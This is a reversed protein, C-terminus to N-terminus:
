AVWKEEFEPVPVPKAFYYGQFMNCGMASLARYQSETEVGESLSTMGLDESMKIISHMITRTREKEGSERLFAMDIKLVDVPMDKLLNLSSYGSGFDDMEIIFGAERLENLIQLRNDIDAMMVTETIELRLRVPDIDYEKVLSKLEAMVDIFFFDKPSINVSIFLDNNWRKLIECASRWIYKDVSAILGNKELAPIFSAPSLFGRDPHNWRVLAEAGVVKGDRDVLPQLYPCLERNDIARQVENAINRDWIAKLRMEEDYRAIHTHLDNKITNHAMNARDFMVPVELSPDNIEYVGMHIPVVYHMWGQMVEFNALKDRVSTEDVKGKPLCLGFKDSSFRGFIGGCETFEERIWRAISKLVYDGFATGFVDNVLKFGDVNAFVIEREKSPDEDLEARIREYLYERTYLGTLTDHRANFLKQELERKEETSDHVIIFSGSQNVMQRTISLYRTNEGKGITREGSWNGEQPLKGIMENLRESAMEFGKGQLGAFAIGRYNAWICMNSADFLFVANEMEQALNALMSDLLRVPKFLLAFYFILLGFVGYGIMSRDIPSRSFIYFTQWGGVILMTILIVYYREAYIRPTKKTKVIFIILVSFFIVYDLIRHYTQGAFPVLKYYAYGDVVSPLTRFANRFFPNLCFQVLDAIIPIIVLLQMKRNPWKINCYAFAFSLLALLAFDMGMFYIYCGVTSLLKNGTYVIITNGIIPPILALLMRALPKGIPKKSRLAIVACVILAAAIILFIVSYVARL